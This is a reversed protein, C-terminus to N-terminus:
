MNPTMKRGTATGITFMKLKTEDFKTMFRPHIESYTRHWHGPQRQSSIVPYRQSNSACKKTTTTPFIRVEIVFSSHGPCGFINFMHVFGAFFFVNLNNVRFGRDILSLCWLPVIVWHTHIRTRARACMDGDYDRHHNAIMKTKNKGVPARKYRVGNKLAAWRHRIQWQTQFQIWAYSWM